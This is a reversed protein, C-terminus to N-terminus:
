IKTVALSVQGFPKADSPFADLDTVFTEMPQSIIAVISIYLDTILEIIKTQM